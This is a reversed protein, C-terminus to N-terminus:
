AAGGPATTISLNHFLRLWRAAAEVTSFRHAKDQHLTFRASTADLYEPCNFVASTRTLYYM